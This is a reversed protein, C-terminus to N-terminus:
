AKEFHLKKEDDVWARCAVECPSTEKSTARLTFTYAGLPMQWPWGVGVNYASSTPVLLQIADGSHQSVTAPEDFNIIQVYREESANLTFADVLLYSRQMGNNRDAIDLYLKCNSLFRAPGENKVAISFTHSLKYFGSTRKTEFYGGNGFIIQLPNRILSHREVPEDNGDQNINQGTKFFLWLGLLALGVSPGWRLFQDGTISDIFPTLLRSGREYFLSRVFEWFLLWAAAGFLSLAGFM